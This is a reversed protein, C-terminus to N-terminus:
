LQEPGSTTEIDTHGNQKTAAEKERLKELRLKNRKTIKKITGLQEGKTLSAWNTIRRMTGDENIIIPGLEDLSLSEGGVEIKKYEIDAVLSSDPLLLTGDSVDPSVENQDLTGLRETGTM